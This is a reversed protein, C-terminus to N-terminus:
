IKSNARYLEMKNDLHQQCYYKFCRSKTIVSNKILNVYEPSLNLLRLQNAVEIQRKKKHPLLLGLISFVCLYHYRCLTGLVYLYVENRGRYKPSLNLLRLQNAVEIHKKQKTKSSAVEIHQVHV